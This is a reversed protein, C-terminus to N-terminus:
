SWNFCNATHVSSKFRKWYSKSWVSKMKNLKGTCYRKKWKVFSSHRRRGEGSRYYVNEETYNGSVNNVLQQLKNYEENAQNQYKHCPCHPNRPDNIDYKSKSSDGRPVHYKEVSDSDALLPMIGCFVFCFIFAVGNCSFRLLRGMKLSQKLVEEKAVVNKFFM